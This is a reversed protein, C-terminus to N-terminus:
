TRSFLEWKARELAGVLYDTSSHGSACIEVSGSCYGLVVVSSWQNKSCREVAEQLTERAAREGKCDISKIM